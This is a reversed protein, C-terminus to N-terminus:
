TLATEELLLAITHVLETMSFPKTLYADAGHAFGRLEDIPRDMGTLMLIPVDWRHYLRRLKACVEYGSMDPLRLDLIVLDPRHEAAFRLAPEGAGETRVEYGSLALRKALMEAMRPDDEVILIQYRAVDAM